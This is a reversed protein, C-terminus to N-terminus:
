CLLPFGYNEIFICSWLTWTGNSYYTVLTYNSTREEVLWEKPETLKMTSQKRGASNLDSGASIAKRCSLQNRRMLANRLAPPVLNEINMPPQVPVNQICIQNFTVKPNLSFCPIVNDKLKSFWGRYFTHHVWSAVLENFGGNEAAMKCCGLHLERRKEMVEMEEIEQSSFFNDMSPTFFLQNQNMPYISAIYVGVTYQMYFDTHTYTFVWFHM